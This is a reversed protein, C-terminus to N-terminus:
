VLHHLNNNKYQKIKNIADEKNKFLGLHKLKKNEYTHVQWKKSIKNWTVGVMGSINDKRLGRNKCNEQHTVERLNKIRNDIKNRNKHDIEDNPMKGNIFLWALRHAYYTKGKFKIRIYGTSNDFRGARSGARVRAGVTIKWIFIGTDKNYELIEKLKEQTIM